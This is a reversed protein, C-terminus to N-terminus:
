TGSCRGIIHWIHGVARPRGAATEIYLTSQQRRLLTPGALDSDRLRSPDFPRDILYYRSLSFSLVNCVCLPIHCADLAWRPQSSAGHISPFLLPEGFCLPVLALVAVTHAMLLSKLSTFM